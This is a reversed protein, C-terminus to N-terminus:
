RHSLVVDFLHQKEYAAKFTQLCKSWPYSCEQALQQELLSYPSAFAGDLARSWCGCHRRSPSSFIDGIPICIFILPQRHSVYMKCFKTLTGLLKFTEIIDCLGILSYDHKRM